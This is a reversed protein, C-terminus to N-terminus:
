QVSIGMARLEPDNSVRNRFEDVTSSERAHLMVYAAAHGGRTGRLTSLVNPWLVRALEPNAETWKIWEHSNRMYRHLTTDGDHWQNNWHKMLVWRPEDTEIPLWYGETVLYAALDYTEDWYEFPSRYLPIYTRPLLVESQARVQFTDPSFFTRAGRARLSCYLYGAAVGAAAICSLLIAIVVRTKM